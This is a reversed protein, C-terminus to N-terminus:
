ALARRVGEPARESGAVRRARGSLTVIPSITSVGARWRVYRRGAPRSDRSRGAGPAAANKAKPSLVRSRTRRRGPVDDRRRRRRGADHRGEEVVVVHVPEQPDDAAVDAPQPQRGEALERQRMRRDDVVAGLDAQRLSPVDSVGSPLPCGSSDRRGIGQPASCSRRQEVEITAQDTRCVSGAGTALRASPRDLEVVRAPRYAYRQTWRALESAM